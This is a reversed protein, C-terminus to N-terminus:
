SSGGEDDDDDNSSSSGFLGVIPNNIGNCVITNICIPVVSHEYQWDYILDQKGIKLFLV